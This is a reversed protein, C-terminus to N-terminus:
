KGPFMREIALDAAQPTPYDFVRTRELRWQPDNPTWRSTETRRPLRTVSNLFVRLRYRPSMETADFSTEEWTLEYVESDDQADPVAEPPLRELETDMPVGTMAFGLIDDVLKQLGVYEQPDLPADNVIGERAYRM